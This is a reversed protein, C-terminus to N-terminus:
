NPDGVVVFPAWYFPHNYRPDRLLKLEARRLAEAKPLGALLNRHFQVMLASTSESDVSWQSVVTAPVGAVFFAWTLGIMGEGGAVRGRATDCASLVVLDAKLDMNAVEWAELIGDDDSGQARSLIIQSYMPSADNLIGHAALHLIRFGSADAKLRDETADPGLYIRSRHRAYLQGLMRVQTEAEPIPELAADMFAAKIRSSAEKGVLANGLALLSPDSAAGRKGHTHRSMERLATLSPAYSIAHDQLLFHDPASQLAQFPLEWLVGDPVLILDNKGAIDAAAPKVLLNYIQAALDSYTMSRAALSERFHEALTRLDQEKAGLNYVKVEIHKDASHGRTLVFLYSTEESIVYELLASSSDPLLAACQDISIPQFEARKIKLDPHAAYLRTQFDEYAARAHGLDAVLTALRNQDRTNNVNEKLIQANLSALRARFRDDENKEESTMAKSSDTKGSQLIDVVSRAKAREGFTLAEFNQREEILLDVMRYYPAVRTNLFDKTLREPGATQSRLHETASISGTLAQKAQDFKSLDHYAMGLICLANSEEELIGIEHAMSLAEKEVAVAEENRKTLNYVAGLDVLANAIGSKDGIQRRIRLSEQYYDLAKLPRGQILQLTGLDTLAYACGSRNGIDSAMKLERQYYDEAGSFNHQRCRVLGIHGLIM